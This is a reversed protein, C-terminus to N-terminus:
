PEVVNSIRPRVPSVGGIGAEVNELRWLEFGGSADGSALCRGSPHWAATLLPAAWPSLCIEARTRVDWVHLTSDESASLLLRGDPSFAAATIAAGTQAILGLPAGTLGDWLRLEGNESRPGAGCSVIMSGDPAFSSSLVPGAHAAIKLM